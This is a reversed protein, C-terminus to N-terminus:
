EGFREKLIKDRVSILDDINWAIFDCIYETDFKEQHATGSSALYAHVLEHTLLLKTEEYLFTSNIDIARYLTWCTGYHDETMFEPKMFRISWTRGNIKVKIIDKM